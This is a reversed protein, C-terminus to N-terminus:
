QFDNSSGFILNLYENEIHGNFEGGYIKFNFELFYNKGNGPAPTGDELYKDKSLKKETNIIRAVYQGDKLERRETQATVGEMNIDLLAM